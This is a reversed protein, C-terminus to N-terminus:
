PHTVLLTGAAGSRSHLAVRARTFGGLGTPLAPQSSRLLRPAARSLRPWFVMATERYAPCSVVLSTPRATRM